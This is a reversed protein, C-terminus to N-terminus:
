LNARPMEFNLTTLGGNVGYVEGTVYSAAPSALYLACASIDEVEGLRDMPTRKVMEREIDENLITNLAETKISGVAIANVRVKPAFDQALQRTMFALAAKATGYAVFGASNERGAVSGINIISGSGTSEVMKPVALRTM